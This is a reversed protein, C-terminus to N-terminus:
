KAEKDSSTGLGKYYKSNYKSMDIKNKEKWEDFERVSYFQNINTKKKDSMKWVKLLPTNLTKIFDDMLLLEPWFHEFMNIILGKIHFGDADQDTLIVIGGYRLKSKDKYKEGQKLGLIKKLNNFEKNALIQKPNANRVNLLKGKLPFVGYKKSGIVGLGSVAFARASDGETLFLYCQQSNRKGAWDADILKEVDSLRGVKKGDTKSLGKNEKFESLEVVEKQLGSKCLLEIFEDSFNCRADKHNSVTWSAVKSEMYEKTQSSFKPDEIVCNIFFTLYQKVNAPSIKLKEYKKQANIYKIVRQVVNNIVHSEHTGGRYTNIGNVFSVCRDGKDPNFVAGIEWRSNVKEYTIKPKSKEAYYLKIYDKFDRCKVNNGNVKVSVSKPTCAGLDYCRRILLNYMDSSLGDMNFRKYDPIYRIQTYEKTKQDIDYNIVPKNINYMNDKFVQTYEAIKTKNNNMCKGVTKVEFETSYINALKAGYGNKGGTTKGKKDYNSSTLLRGFILEPTYIDMEGHKKVPIGDGDNWVTIEGKEKNIDIRINKCKKEKRTSHDRANVIIEDFIKFFGSVYEISEEIIMGDIEDDKDYSDNNIYLLEHDKEVSGIYTDPLDLIHEHHTKQKYEEEVKLDEDLKTKKSYKIKAM